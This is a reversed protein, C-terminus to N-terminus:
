SASGRQPRMGHAELRALLARCRACLATPTCPDGARRAAAKELCAVEGTRAPRRLRLLAAVPEATTPM